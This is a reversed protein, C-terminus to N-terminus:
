GLSHVLKSLRSIKRSATNSHIVGKTNAKDIYSIAKLLDTQSNEKNGEAVSERVKKVLNRMTTRVHTNRANRRANQKIRKIASKHNAM